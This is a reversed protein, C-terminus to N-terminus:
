AAQLNSSIRDLADFAWGEFNLSTGYERSEEVSAEVAVFSSVQPIQVPKQDNLYVRFAAAAGNEQRLTVDHGYVTGDAKKRLERTSDVTGAIIVMPRVTRAIGM